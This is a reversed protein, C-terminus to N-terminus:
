FMLDFVVVRSQKMKKDVSQDDYAESDSETFSNNSNRLNNSSYTACSSACTVRIYFIGFKM